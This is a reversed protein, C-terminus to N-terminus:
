GNFNELISESSGKNHARSSMAEIRNLEVTELKNNRSHQRARVEKAM